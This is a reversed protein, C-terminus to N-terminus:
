AKKSKSLFYWQFCFCLLCLLIYPKPDKIRKNNLRIVEDRLPDRLKTNIKKSHSSSYSKSVEYELSRIQKNLSVQYVSFTAFGLALVLFWSSLTSYGKKTVLVTM